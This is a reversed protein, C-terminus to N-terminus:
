WNERQKLAQIQALHHRGHWAYLGINKKIMIIGSEPHFFTRNLQDENLSKLLIVWHKHLLEIFKLSDKVPFLSYDALEAWLKQDYPKITPHEETLALKLRIYSNIHSDAIHHVVQRVTWGGDRYPTDLQQKSLNKVAANLQVPLGEIEKIWKKVIDPHIHEPSKFHGIPYKLKELDM